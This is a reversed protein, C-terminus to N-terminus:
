KAGNTSDAQQNEKKKRPANNRPTEETTNSTTQATVLVSAEPPEIDTPIALELSEVAELNMAFNDVEADYIDRTELNLDQTAMRLDVERGVEGAFKFQQGAGIGSTIAAFTGLGVCTWAWLNFGCSAGAALGAQIASIAGTAANLTQAAGEVYCLVQTTKDFSEAYDTLGEVEGITEAALDYNDQYEGIDEYITGVKDTTKTSVEEIQAGTRQMYAIVEKYLSKESDTLKEGFDVKEQLAVYSSMYMDYETKREQIKENADANLKDAKDALKITKEGAKTMDREASELDSQATSMEGELEACADVEDTNPKKILYATATVSSMVAGISWSLSNQAAKSGAEQASKMGLNKFLSKSGEEAAIKGAQGGIVKGAAQTGKSLMVGTTIATTGTFVADGAVHAIDGGNKVEGTAEKGREEGVENYGDYDDGNFDIEYENEDDSPRWSSINDAWREEIERIQTRSLNMTNGYYQYNIYARKCSLESNFDIKVTM